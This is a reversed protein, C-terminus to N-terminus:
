FTQPLLVSPSSGFEVHAVSKALRAQGKQAGKREVRTYIHEISLIRYACYGLTEAEALGGGPLLVIDATTPLSHLTELPVVNVVEDHGLVFELCHESLVMGDRVERTEQRTKWSQYYTAGVTPLGIAFSFLTSYHNLFEILRMM